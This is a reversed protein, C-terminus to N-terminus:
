LEKAEEAMNRLRAIEKASRKPAGGHKHPKCMACGASHKDKHKGEHGLGRITSM